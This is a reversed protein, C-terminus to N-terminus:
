RSQLSQQLARVIHEPALAVAIQHIARDAVFEDIVIQTFRQLVDTVGRAHRDNGIRVDATLGGPRENVNRQVRSQFVMRAPVGNMTFFVAPSVIQDM